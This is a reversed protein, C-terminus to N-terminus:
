KVFSSTKSSRPCCVVSVPCINSFFTVLGIKNTICLTAKNNGPIWDIFNVLKARQIEREIVEEKANEFDIIYKINEILKGTIIEDEGNYIKM